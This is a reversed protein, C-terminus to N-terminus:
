LEAVPRPRDSGCAMLYALFDMETLIGVLRAARLVPLAGIKKSLLTRGAAVALAEPSTTIPSRTMVEGATITAKECLREAITTDAKTSSLASLLDRDSLIGVLRDGNMVPLHRFPGTRM